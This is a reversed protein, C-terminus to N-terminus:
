RLLVIYLLLKCVHHLTQKALFFFFFFFSRYTFSYLYERAWDKLYCLSDYYQPRTGGTEGQFLNRINSNPYLQLNYNTNIGLSLIYEIVPLSPSPFMRVIVMVIPGKILVFGVSNLRFFTLWIIQCGLMVMGSDNFISIYRRIPHVKRKQVTETEMAIRQVQYIKIALLIAVIANVSLSASFAATSISFFWSQSSFPNQGVGSPEILAGIM